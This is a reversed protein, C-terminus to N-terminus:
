LTPPLGFLPFLRDTDLFYTIETIRDGTLELVHLSFHNSAAAPVARATSGSHPAPTGRPRSWAHAAANSVASWDYTRTVEAESPGLL